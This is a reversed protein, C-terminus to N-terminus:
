SMENQLEKLKKLRAKAEDETKFGDEKVSFNTSSVWEWCILQKGTKLEEGYISYEVVQLPKNKRAYYEVIAYRIKYPSEYHINVEIANEIKDELEVLRNLKECVTDIAQVEEYHREDLEIVLDLEHDDEDYYSGKKTLRKYDKM